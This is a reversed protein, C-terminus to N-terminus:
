SLKSDLARSLASPAERQGKAPIQFGLAIPGTERQRPNSEKVVGLKRSRQFVGKKDGQVRKLTKYSRSKTLHQVLNLM